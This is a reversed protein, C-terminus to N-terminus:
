FFRQPYISTKSFRNSVSFYSVTPFSYCFIQVFLSKGLYSKYMKIFFRQPYISTKSDQVQDFMHVEEVPDFEPDYEEPNLQEPNPIETKPTDADPHSRM